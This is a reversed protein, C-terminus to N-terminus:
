CYLFARTGVLKMPGSRSGPEVPIERRFRLLPYKSDRLIM